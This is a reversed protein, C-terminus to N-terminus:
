LEELEAVRRRASELLPGTIRKRELEALARRARRLELGRDVPRAVPKEDRYAMSTLHWGSCRQCPYARLGLERARRVAVAEERFRAKRGCKGWAPRM